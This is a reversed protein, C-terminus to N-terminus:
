ILRLAIISLMLLLNTTENGLERKLSQRLDPYLLMKTTAKILDMM